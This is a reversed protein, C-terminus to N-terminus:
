FEEVIKVIKDVVQDITLDTTDIIIADAAPKLPSHERELDIRDRNQIDLRVQQLSVNKKNTIDELYRRKAREEVSATLYIKVKAEPLVYTGIDRGDMVLSRKEAQQRQLRVLHERVGQYTAVIAVARSVEPSRIKRTVDEGDCYVTKKSYDFEINVDKAVDVVQPEDTVLIGSALVKYAIARYM